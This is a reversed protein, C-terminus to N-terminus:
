LWFETVIMYAAACLVALILSPTVIKIRQGDTDRGSEDTDRGSEDTDRSSDDTDRSRDDTDRSSDKGFAQQMYEKRGSLRLILRLVGYALFGCIVAEVAYFGLTSLIEQRSLVDAAGQVTGSTLGEAATGPSKELENQFAMLIVSNSNIIFHALMSSILSGTAEVLLAFIMGIVFAYCFQNLNMHLLGFCLGSFLIAKGAGAPRYGHYIVGRFMFEEALAPVIAIYFLNKGLAAGDLGLLESAVYNRAFLMSFLNLCTMLPMMLWTFVMVLLLVSIRPVQLQLDNLCLGGTLAIYCLVPILFLAESVASSQYFTLNGFFRGFLFPSAISILIMVLFLRNVNKVRNM